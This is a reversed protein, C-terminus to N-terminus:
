GASPTEGPVPTREPMRPLPRPLAPAHIVPLREAPLGPPRFVGDGDADVRIMNSFAFPTHGPLVARYVASDSVRGIVEVFVISDAEFHLPQTIPRGPVVRSPHVREGNVYVYASDVPVWPSVLVSLNLVADSGTFTEGPGAGGLDVQLLPGTTGFTRGARLAEIFAREDFAEGLPGDYAVYNRPIAVPVSSHHSDSNATGTRAEGQLHWSVWDARAQAYAEFDAGNLLEIADFDLDRAGGDPAPEILSANARADLPEDPHHGHGVHGLHSLYAGNGGDVGGERPHNLQLLPSEPRARVATVLDRLRRGEHFPIGERFATPDPVLPFVNSHGITFPAEESEATGTIESGVITTVRRQLGLARVTPGLDTARDHDTAVLVQAGSAVFSRVQDDPSTSTDDSAAAHVHLDASVWGPLAIMRAPAAIELQVPVGVTTAITAETVSFEPGRTAFVRYRGSPVVVHAPDDFGGSLSVFNRAQPSQLTSAGLAFDMLDDDFVPNPTPDIGQFVLRVPGMAPLEVVAPEQLFIAGLDVGEPAAAVTRRIRRGDPVRFTLEYPGVRDSPLRFSFRGDDAPAAWTVPRGAADRVDIRADASDIRGHVRPGDSWLRSTFSAVDPTRSIVIERESLLTEGEDLDMFASQALELLGPAGDGGIWPRRSFHALMTFHLGNLGMTPIPQRAGERDIRAVDVYRWGYGIGPHSVPATVLVQTDAGVLARATRMLDAMDVDPHQFGRTLGPEAASMTFASLQRNGHLVVDGFLFLADGDAVREIETRIGLRDPRAHDVFYTTVIELGQQTAHTTIRAESEDVSAEIRDVQVALSRSLNLLPHMVVFEDDDRGCHGIDVLVGGAVTVGMEHDPDAIAACLVGNGLAWDDIGAVADPGGVRLQGVNEPTLREAFLASPGDALAPAASPWALLLTGLVAILGSSLAAGVTTRGCAAGSRGPRTSASCRRGIRPPPLM